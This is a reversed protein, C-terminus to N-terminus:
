KRKDFKDRLKLTKRLLFLIKVNQNTIKKFSINFYFLIILQVFLVFRIFTVKLKKVFLLNFSLKFRKDYNM